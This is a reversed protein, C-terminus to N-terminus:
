KEYTWTLNQESMDTWQFNESSCAVEVAGYGYANVGKGGSSRVEAKNEARFKGNIYVNVPDGTITFVNGNLVMLYGGEEVELAKHSAGLTAEDVDNKVLKNWEGGISVHAGEKVLIRTVNSANLASTQSQKDDRADFQLIVQNKGYNQSSIKNALNTDNTAGRFRFFQNQVDTSKAEFDGTADTVDMIGTGGEIVVHAYAKVYITGNNVIKKTSPRGSTQILDAQKGAEGLVNIVGDITNVLDVKSKGEPMSWDDNAPTLKAKNVNIEGNNLGSFQSNANVNVVGNAKNWSYNAYLSGNANVVGSNTFTFLNLAAGAAVTTIANEKGCATCAANYENYLNTIASLGEANVNLKNNNTVTGVVNSAVMNMTGDNHIFAFWPKDQASLWSESADVKGGLVISNNLTLTAGEMNHIGAERLSQVDILANNIELTGENIICGVGGYKKDAYLPEIKDVMDVGDNFGDVRNNWQSVAGNWFTKIAAWDSKEYNYLISKNIIQKAGEDILIRVDKSYSFLDIANNELDKGFVLRGYNGATKTFYVLARSGNNEAYKKNLGEMWAVLEPTVKFDGMTEVYFLTQKNQDMEYNEGYFMKLHALLDKANTAQVIRSRTPYFDDFKIDAEIYTRETTLDINRLTFKGDNEVGGILEAYDGNADRPILIGEEWRSRSANYQKGYVTFAYEKLYLNHPLTLFAHFFDGNNLLYGNGGEEGNLNEDTFDLVYEYAVDAMEGECKYPTLGNEGPYSYEVVSRAATRTWTKMSWYTNTLDNQGECAAAYTDVIYPQAFAPMNDCVSSTMQQGANGQWTATGKIVGPYNAKFANINAESTVSEKWQWNFLNKEQDQRIDFSERTNNAPRIYALTPMPKGDLRNIVIKEVKFPKEDSNELVLDIMGLIPRMQIPLQLADGETLEQNRYIQSYGLFFQNEDIGGMLANEAVVPGNSSPLTVNKANARGGFKQVPNIYLWADRRNTLKKLHNQQNNAPAIAFYNGEVIADDNIWSQSAADFRFPFNTQYYNSMQYMKNWVEQDMFWTKNANDAEEIEIQVNKDTEDMLFLGLANGEQWRATEWDIRTDAGGDTLTVKGVKVRNQLSPVANESKQGMFDDQTCAAFLPLAMAALLYKKKM